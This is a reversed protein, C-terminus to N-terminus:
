DREQLPYLREAEALSLAEAPTFIEGCKSCQFQTRDRGAFGCPGYGCDPCYLSLGAPKTEEPGPLLAELAQREVDSALTVSAKLGWVEVVHPRKERREQRFVALADVIAAEADLASVDGYQSLSTARGDALLAQHDLCVLITKQDNARRRFLSPRRTLCPALEAARPEHDTFTQLHLQDPGFQRHHWRCYVREFRDGGALESDETLLASPPKMLRFTRREAFGATDVWAVYYDNM